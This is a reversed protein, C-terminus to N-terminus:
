LPLVKETALSSNCNTINGSKDVDYSIEAGADFFFTVNYWGSQMNMYFKKGAAKCDSLINELETPDKVVSKDYYM